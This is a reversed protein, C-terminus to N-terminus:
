SVMLYVNACMFCIIILRLVHNRISILIQTHFPVVAVIFFFFFVGGFHREIMANLRQVNFTWREHKMDSLTRKKFTEVKWYKCLCIKRTYNENNTRENVRWQRNVNVIFPPSAAVLLNNKLKKKVTKNEKMKKKKSNYRCISPSNSKVIRSFDHLLSLAM